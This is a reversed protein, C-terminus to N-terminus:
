YLKLELVNMTIPHIYRRRQTFRKTLLNVSVYYYACTVLVSVNLSNCLRVFLHISKIKNMKHM